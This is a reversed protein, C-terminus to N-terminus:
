PLIKPLYGSSANLPKRVGFGLFLHWNKGSALAGETWYYNDWLGGVGGESSVVGKNACKRLLKSLAKGVMKENESSDGKFITAGIANEDDRGYTVDVFGVIDARGVEARPKDSFTFDKKAGILIRPKRSSNILSESGAGLSEILAFPEESSASMFLDLGSEEKLKNVLSAYEAFTIFITKEM